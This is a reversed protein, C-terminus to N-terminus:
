RVGFLLEGYTPFPWFSEATIMEAEDCSARLESMRPLVNDRIRYGEDIISESDGLRVLEASLAKKYEYIQNALKSLKAVIETEYTDEASSLLAKKKNAGEALHAAYNEIAPLIEKNVMEVM